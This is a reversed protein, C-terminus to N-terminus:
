VKSWTAVFFKVQVINSIDTPESILEFKQEVYGEINIPGMIYQCNQVKPLDHLFGRTQMLGDGIRFNNRLPKFDYFTKPDFNVSMKIIETVPTTQGGVGLCVPCVGNTFPIVGGPKYVNSSKDTNGDYYCNTCETFQDQFYFRFNKGMEGIIDSFAKRGLEKIDDTLTFLEGM